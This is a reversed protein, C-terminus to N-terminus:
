RVDVDFAATRVRGGRKVQVWIRYPGRNPFAFPIAVAGPMVMDHGAHSDAGAGSFQQLAAMSISGSPHLHAFV